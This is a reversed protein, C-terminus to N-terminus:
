PCTCTPPTSTTRDIAELAARVDACDVTDDLSGIKVLEFTATTQQSQDQDDLRTAQDSDCATAANWAAETCTVSDNEWEAMPVQTCGYVRGDTRLNAVTGVLKECDEVEVDMNTVVRTALSVCGARETVVTPGTTFNLPLYSYFHVDGPVSAQTTESPFRPWVSFGPVGDDDTDHWAPAAGGEPNVNARSAPWTANLPDSGLDMGVVAAEDPTQFMSGPVLDPEPIDVGPQLPFGDYFAEPVYSSYTEGFIPSILDPTTDSGCGKKEVQIVTGDYSLKHLEWITAELTGASIVTTDTLDRDCWCTDLDQRMAWFGSLDCHCAGGAGAFPAQCECRYGGDDNVCTANEDCDNLAADACEDIDECEGSASQQFEGACDCFHGGPTNLCSANAGCGGDDTACEDADTCATAPDGDFGPACACTRAGAAGTCVTNAVDGTGDGDCAEPCDTAATCDSSGDGVFGPQCADCVAVRDIRCLANDACVSPDALAIECLGECGAEPDGGFLPECDCRYSGNLDVCEANQGCEASGSRCEDVDSCSEGDGQYGDDCVCEPSGDDECSANADCELDACRLDAGSDAGADSGGQGGGGNDRNAGEDPSSCALL